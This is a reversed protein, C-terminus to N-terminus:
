KHTQIKVELTKMENDREIEEESRGKTTVFSSAAMDCTDRKLKLQNLRKSEKTRLDM